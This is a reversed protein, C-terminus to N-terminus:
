SRGFFFYQFYAYCSNEDTLSARSWFLQLAQHADDVKLVTNGQESKRKSTDKIQLIGSGGLLTEFVAACERVPVGSPKYTADKIKGAVSGLSLLCVCVCVCM